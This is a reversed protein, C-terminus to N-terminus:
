QGGHRERTNPSLTLTVARIQRAGPRAPAVSYDPLVSVETFTLSNKRHHMSTLIYVKPLCPLHTNYSGLEQASPSSLLQPDSARHHLNVGGLFYVGATDHEDVGIV